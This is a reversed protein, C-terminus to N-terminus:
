AEALNKNRRNAEDQADKYNSFVETEYCWDIVDDHGTVLSYHYGYEDRSVRNVMMMDPNVEYYIDTKDSAAKKGPISYILFASSGIQHKNKQM